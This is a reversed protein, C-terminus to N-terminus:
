CPATESLTDTEKAPGATPLQSTFSTSNPRKKGQCAVSSIASVTKGNVKKSVKFWKLHETELSGALGTTPYDVYTPIPTDIVLSKGVTKYTAPYPGVSGTTLAGGLCQHTPTDVFFYTLKGQGSNFVDLQPDCPAAAVKFNGEAGLGATIFGTAVESGKPCVTDNKAKAITALSCTPFDKGDEKLGYIKTTINLLVASRNGNTGSAKLDQTYGIPVPKTAAGAQKSTFGLHATYTNLAAYASAAGALVVATTVIVLIRRL